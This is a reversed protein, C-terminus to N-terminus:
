LAEELQKVKDLGRFVHWLYKNMENAYHSVIIDGQM